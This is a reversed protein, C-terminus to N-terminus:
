ANLIQRSALASKPTQHPKREISLFFGGKASTMSFHFAGCKLVNVLYSKKVIAIPDTRRPVYRTYPYLKAGCQVVNLVYWVRGGYISIPHWSCFLVRWIASHDYVSISNREYVIMGCQEVQSHTSLSFISQYDKRLITM